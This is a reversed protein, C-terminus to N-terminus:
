FASSSLSREQPPCISSCGFVDACTQRPNVRGGPQQLQETWLLKYHSHFSTQTSAAWNIVTRTEHTCSTLSRPRARTGGLPWTLAASLPERVTGRCCANANIYTLSWGATSLIRTAASRPSGALVSCSWPSNTVIFSAKNLFM